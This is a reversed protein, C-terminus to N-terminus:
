GERGRTRGGRGRRGGRGWAGSRGGGGLCVWAGPFIGRLRASSSAPALQGRIRGQHNTDPCPKLRASLRRRQTSCRKLAAYDRLGTMGLAAFHNAFRIVKRLRPVQQGSKVKITYPRVGEDARRLLARCLRQSRTSCRKLAAYVDWGRDDRACCSSECRSDNQSTSPGATQRCRLSHHSGWGERKEFPPSVVAARQVPKSESRACTPASARTRGASCREAGGRVKRSKFPGPKLRAAARRRQTSCRKLAAYVSWGRDDQAFFIM